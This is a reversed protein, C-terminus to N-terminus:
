QAFTKLSVSMEDNAISNVKIMGLVDNSQDSDNGVNFRFLIEDGAAATIRTNSTPANDTLQAETLADYTVGSPAQAFYVVNKTAWTAVGLYDVGGINPDSPGFINGSQGSYFIAHISNSNSSATSSGYTAGTALNIASPSTSNQNGLTFPSGTVESVLDTTATSVTYSFSRSGGPVISADTLDDNDFFDINIEFTAGDQLQPVIFSLNETYVERDDGIVSTINSNLGQPILPQGDQDSIVRQRLRKENDTATYEITIESGAAVTSGADPTENVVWSVQPVTEDDDESCSTFVFAFLGLFFPLLKRMHEISNQQM